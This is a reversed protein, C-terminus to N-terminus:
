VDHARRIKERIRQFEEYERARNQARQAMMRREYESYEPIKGFEGTGWRPDLQLRKHIISYNLTIKDEARAPTEASAPSKENENM